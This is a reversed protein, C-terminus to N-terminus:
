VKMSAPETETLIKKTHTGIPVLKNQYTVIGRNIEKESALVFPVKNSNVMQLIQDKQSPSLSVSVIDMPYAMLMDYFKDRRINIYGEKIKKFEPLGFKEYDLFQNEIFMEEVFEREFTTERDKGSLLWKSFENIKDIPVFIRLDDPEKDAPLCGLSELFPVASDFFKYCGGIPQFTNKRRSHVLLYKDDIKISFLYSVSFKVYKEKDM